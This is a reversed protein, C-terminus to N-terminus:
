IKARLATVISVHSGKRAPWISAVVISIFCIVGAEVYASFLPTMKLSIERSTFPLSLGMGLSSILQALCFAVPIGIAVALVGLFISELLFLKQIDTEYDGLARLTGIEGLREFITMNTTNSVSLVLLALLIFEIVFTQFNYFNEVQLFMLDLDIWPKVQLDQNPLLGQIQPVVKSIDDDSKLHVLVEDVRETDLVKQADVLPLFITSNDIDTFGTNFLGQVHIDMANIGGDLTPSVITVDSGAKVKLLKALGLGIIASKSNEFPTGDAFYLNKQMNVEAKPDFGVFRAPISQDETNVLGFFNLRASAINIEPLQGIKYILDKPDDVMKEIVQDVAANSFHKKKAVVIHGYQTQIKSNQMTALVYQKFGKFLVIASFAGILLLLNLLLRTKHRFLNRFALRLTLM